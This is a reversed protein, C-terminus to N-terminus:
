EISVSINSATILVVSRGKLDKGLINIFQLAEMEDLSEQLLRHEESLMSPTFDPTISVFWELSSLDAAWLDYQRSVKQITSISEADTSRQDTKNSAFPNKAMSMSPPLQWTVPIKGMGTSRKKAYTSNPDMPPVPVGPTSSDEEVPITQPDPDSNMQSVPAKSATQKSPTISMQSLPDDIDSTPSVTVEVETENSPSSTDGHEGNSATPSPRAVPNSVTNKTLKVTPNTLSPRKKSGPGASITPKRDELIITGWENGIERGGEPLLGVQEQEEEENRPFYAPLLTSYIEWDDKNLICFILRYIMCM